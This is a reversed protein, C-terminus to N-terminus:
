GIAVVKKDSALEILMDSSFEDSEDSMPHMGVSVSITPYDRVKELMAPYTKLNISVCLMHEIGANHTHQILTDFDNDFDSLDICDLHCHSDVLM